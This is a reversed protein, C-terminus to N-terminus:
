YRQTKPSFGKPVTDVVLMFKLKAPFFNKKEEDDTSLSTDAWAMDDLLDMDGGIRGGDYSEHREKAAAKRKESEETKMRERENQNRVIEEALAFIRKRELEAFDEESTQTEIMRTMKETQTEKTVKGVM